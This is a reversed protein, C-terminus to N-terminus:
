KFIPKEKGNINFIGENNKYFIEVKEDKTVLRIGNASVARKLDFTGLDTVSLIASEFNDNSFVKYLNGNADKFVELTTKPAVVGYYNKYAGNSGACGVLFLGVFACFIMKKFM